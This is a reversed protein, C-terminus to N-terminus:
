LKQFPVTRLANESMFSLYYQGAPLSGLMLQYQGGDLYSKETLVLQGLTNKVWLTGTQEPFGQLHLYETCPNPWISFSQTMEDAVIGTSFEGWQKEFEAKFLAALVPDHIILINEDNVSEAAYTWNHSGTVVKPASELVNADIVAYKHHLDANMYHHRVNVGKSLLYSYESGPDYVNEIIGRVPLNASLNAVATGLPNYTFSFTAFLIETDASHLASEIQASTSDSPSFYCEILKGGVWFQHPTNDTKAAGFRSVLPNPLPDSGGWMEEFEKEFAKALPQNQIFLTNNFDHFISQTTWNMSGGMVWAKDPLDADIVMFKHHMLGNENGYLVPFPMTASIASNNASLSAIYRVRVGRAQAAKLANTIDTRTNNYMAVDLTQEAANIRAITENLVDFATEGDPTYGQAFHHDIGKNFFIKIQAPLATACYVAACLLAM